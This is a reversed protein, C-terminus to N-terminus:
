AEYTCGMLQGLDLFVKKIFFVVVFLQNNIHVNRQTLKNQRSLIDMNIFCYKSYMVSSLYFM